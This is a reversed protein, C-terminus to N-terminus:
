AIDVQCNSGVLISTNGKGAERGENLFIFHFGLSVFQCSFNTPLHPPDLSPFSSLYDFYLIYM